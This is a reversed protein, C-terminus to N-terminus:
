QANYEPATLKRRRYILIASELLAEKNEEEALCTIDEFQFAQRRGALKSVESKLSITSMRRHLCDDAPSAATNMSINKEKLTLQFGVRRRSCDFYNNKKDDPKGVQVGQGQLWEEIREEATFFESDNSGDRSAYSDSRQRCDEIM